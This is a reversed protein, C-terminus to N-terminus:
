HIIVKKGNKIYIGRRPTQVKQGSLNYYDGEAEKIDPTSVGSLGTTSDDDIEIGLFERAGVTGTPVQVYARNAPSSTDNARKFIVGGHGDGSLVYNTYGDETAPIVTAVTVGKMMSSYYFDTPAVPIDYTSGPTGVIYLGTEEPVEFVRLTSLNGASPKFGCIIYAAIGSVGTFDLPFKSCYTGKGLSNIAISVSTIENITLTGSVYNFSYNTASAGSPTIDFVGATESDTADCTITPQTKLLTSTEGNQFGSYNVSFEPFADGQDITYSNATITLPAKNITFNVNRSGTYNGMGTITATATGANTNNSYAVTYDTGNTLTTSEDMVTVTPTQASGNYTVAAIDSITLSSVDKILPNITFNATKTGTYNGKGTITVTATGVDINNSYSVTYDIDKVLTTTGDNVTVTPTQASGNYTVAAIESITLNSASKANITFNASKTGTYNGKGTITVIATGANINNSYSVTYDTGSTLTTSGDKVTVTPTIASGTYTQAAISSITLNSASKANITFNAAKTGTYNGKGTVTVTATGANINNSYSVTYHTGSTLTTSGDKVTVTPTIASGTYTQAAISSITLNSASKANITFNAAKTGTFNGKGTITVTATGANINNSYSVTYDTGSTLTVSGNKVTVTPTLASGTYTQAAISSITLNSANKANITFNASKTGTYNGKGTITVTATGANINNSYSVTYDTGSTLTLSGNKVTVTPTLASGTYTQAAISSITLSSADRTTITFNVERTGTYNGQGTITVTATGVNTNNSYSLTYDTGSTLITSADGGVGRVTVAPTIASGTYQQDDINTVALHEVKRPTTVIGGKFITANWGRGTFTNRISNNSSYPIYLKCSSSIGDFPNSSTSITPIYLPRIEAYVSTLNSCNRFATPDIGGEKDSRISYPLTITTLGTRGYFAMYGITEVGDPITTNNAGVILKNSSTEIICNSGNANTGDNYSTNGSAVTINTLATCDLFANNGISTVTSPISVSTLSTCGQFAKMGISTVGESLTVSTFDAGNFAYKKVETVSSPITLSTVKTNNLYLQHAYYLPNSDYYEFAINYWAAIDSIKVSTLSTCDSFASSQISTVTAPITVTTLSTCGSFASSRIYRAGEITVSQLGTCGAFASSEISTVSSPITISTLGTRGKFANTGIKTVTSPISTNKAGVILENSSTQIICNKGGGDNYVTNGSAVSINALNTCGEFVSYDGIFTVSAPITISTITSCGKFANQQIGTVTYNKNSYTVQSPVTLNAPITGSICCDWSEDNDEDCLTANNGDITFSWRTGNGDPWSKYQASVNGSAIFALLTFLITKLKM